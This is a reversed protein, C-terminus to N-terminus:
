RIPIYFKKGREVSLLEGEAVMSMCFGGSLYPPNLEARQRETMKLTIRSSLSILSSYFKAYDILSM